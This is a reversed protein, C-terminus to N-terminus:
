LSLDAQLYVLNRTYDYLELDSDLEEYRYGVSVDMWRRFAYKYLAEAGYRNDQRVSGTYDEDGYATKFRTSSRGSWDHDWTLAVEQADVANGLGNTENFYRRSALNFRSYTRLLYTVDVEWSFVEDNDRQNSQYDRDMMGLKVSGTTSATAEWTVGALYNFEDSDLSGGDDEPDLRNYDTEIYRTEFLADTRPAVRWLFTGGYHYSDRSRYRTLEPFNRYDHEVTRAALKLRGRSIESGFLYDGGFSTRDLKVPGDLFEGIGESVDTGRDEHFDRYEAYLDLTHRPTFVQHIDLNITYDTIDDRSSEFYRYDMLATTLSYTNPGNELWTQVRPTVISYGTSKKEDKTRVLNDDYGVRTDLTPSIFAPGAQLNAPDVAYVSFSIILLPLVCLVCWRHLRTLKKNNM